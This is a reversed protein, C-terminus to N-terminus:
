PGSFNYLNHRLDFLKSVAPPCHPESGHEVVLSQERVDGTHIGM